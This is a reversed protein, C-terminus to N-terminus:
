DASSYERHYFVPAGLTTTFIVHDFGNFTYLGHDAIGNTGVRSWVGNMAQFTGTDDPMPSGGVTWVTRYTGHSNPTFRLHVLGNPSAITAV